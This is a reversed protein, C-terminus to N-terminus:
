KCSGFLVRNTFYEPNSLGGSRDADAINFYKPTAKCGATNMEVISLEGSKDADIRAFLETKWSAAMAPAALLTAAVLGLMTNKM